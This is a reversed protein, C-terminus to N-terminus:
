DELEKLLEEALEKRGRVYEDNSKGVIAFTGKSEIRKKFLEKAKQFGELKAKLPELHGDIIDRDQNFMGRNDYEKRKVELEEIEKKLGEEYNTM